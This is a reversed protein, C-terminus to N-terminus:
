PCTEKKDSPSSTPAPGATTSTARTVANVVATTVSTAAAAAPISAAQVSVDSLARTTANMGSAASEAAKVAVGGVVFAAADGVVTAANEKSHNALLAVTDNTASAVGATGAIGLLPAVAPQGGPIVAAIGASILAALGLTNTAASTRKASAELQQGASSASSTASGTAAKSPRLQSVPEIPTKGDPDVYRIPNNSSYAYMNWSQPDEPATDDGPDVAMFRGLSSSYYRALM